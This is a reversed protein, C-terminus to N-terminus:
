FRLISKLKDLFGPLKGSFGLIILVAIVLFALIILVKIILEIEMAKKNM